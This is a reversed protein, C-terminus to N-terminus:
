RPDHREEERGHHPRSEALVTISTIAEDPRQGIVELLRVFRSAIQDVTSATWLDTTYAFSCSLRGGSEVLRVSLDVRPGRLRVPVESVRMGAFDPQAQQQVVDFWINFIPNRGSRRRPRIAQVIRQFPLEQHQYAALAMDRTKALLQRFTPDGTWQLRLAITNVFVGMVDDFEPRARGASPSGVVLDTQGTRWALFAYFAALLTMFQTTGASQSLSRLRVLTEDPVDVVALGAEGGPVKPRDRDTVIAVYPPAGDLFMRWFTVQEAAEPGDLWRNQWGAYDVYQVAPPPPPPRGSSLAAYAASLDRWFLAISPGDVAIHHFCAHLLHEGCRLQYAVFRVPPDRALDFAQATDHRAAEAAREIAVSPALGTLDVLGLPLEDGSISQRVEGEVERYRTRLIEHRRSVAALADALRTIDLPGGSVHWLSSVNSAAPDRALEHMLWVRQQASSTQTRDATVAISASSSSDPGRPARGRLRLALLRRHDAPLAGPPDATQGTM